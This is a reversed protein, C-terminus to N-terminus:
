VHGVNKDSHGVNQQVDSLFHLNKNNSNNLFYTAEDCDYSFTIFMYHIIFSFTWHSVRLHSTYVDSIIDPMAFYTGHVRIYITIYSLKSFYCMRRMGLCHKFNLTCGVGPTYMKPQLTCM